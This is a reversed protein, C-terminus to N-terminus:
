IPPIEIPVGGSIQYTDGPGLEPFDITEIDFPEGGSTIQVTYSETFDNHYSLPVLWYICFDTNENLTDSILSQCPSHIKECFPDVGLIRESFTEM